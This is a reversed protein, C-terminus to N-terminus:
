RDLKSMKKVVFQRGVRELANLSNSSPTWNMVRRAKSSDIILSGCLQQHLAKKKLVRAVFGMLWIPIPLLFGRKGMGKALASVIDATSVDTGDSVLFINNRANPHRICLTTFEVLNEVSILSRRNKLSRFPLPIGTSVLRLLRAFNGPAEIGYVMPPRIIVYEMSTTALYKQLDLEAEYKSVAYDACPAPVSSENFVDSPTEAGNVGISSMFVFRKVGSESALKALALTADRNVARFLSLPDVHSDNVVHARGALHIVCDVGKLVDKLSDIEELAGVRYDVKDLRKTATRVLARVSIGQGLLFLCLENGIFGNAGTVLVEM